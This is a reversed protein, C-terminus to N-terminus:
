AYYPPGGYYPRSPKPCDDKLWCWEGAERDYLSYALKAPTFRDGPQVTDQIGAM